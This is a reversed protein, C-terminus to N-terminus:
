AACILLTEQPGSSQCTKEAASSALGHVSGSVYSPDPLTTPPKRRPHRDDSRIGDGLADTSSTPTKSCQRLDGSCLLTSLDRQLSPARDVCSGFRFRLARYRRWSAGVVPLSLRWRGTPEERFKAIPLRSSELRSRFVSFGASLRILLQPPAVRLLKPSSRLAVMRAESWRATRRANAPLGRRYTAVDGSPDNPSAHDEGPPFLDHSGGHRYRRALPGVSDDAGRSAPLPPPTRGPNAFRNSSPAGADPGNGGLVLGSSGGAAQMTSIRHRSCGVGGQCGRRGCCRWGWCSRWRRCGVGLDGWM